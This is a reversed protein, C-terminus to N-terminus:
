DRCIGGGNKSQDELKKVVPFRIFLKRCATREDENGYVRCRGCFNPYSCSVLSQNYIELLLM